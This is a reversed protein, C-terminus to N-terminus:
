SFERKLEDIREETMGGPDEDIELPFWRPNLGFAFLESYLNKAYIENKPKKPVCADGDLLVVPFSNSETCLHALKMLQSQSARATFLGVAYVGHNTMSWVDSAGEVVAIFSDKPPTIWGGYLLDQIPNNEPTNWRGSREDLSRVEFSRYTGDIDFIPIVISNTIDVKDFWGGLGYKLGFTDCIDKGIGRQRLYEICKIDELFQPPPFANVVKSTDKKRVPQPFLDISSSALEPKSLAAYVEKWSDLNEYLKYFLYFNGRVGCKTSGCVFIGTNINISFSPSHDDHFPCAAHVEGASNPSKGPFKARIYTGFDM